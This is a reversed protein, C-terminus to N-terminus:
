PGGFGHAHEGTAGAYIPAAVPSLRRASKFRQARSPLRHAVRWQSRVHRPNTRDETGVRVHDGHTIAAALVDLQGQEMISVTAVAGGPLHGLKEKKKPLTVSAFGTKALAIGATGVALHGLFKRRTIM